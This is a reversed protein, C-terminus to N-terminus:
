PARHNKSSCFFVNLMYRIMTVTDYYGCVVNSADTCWTFALRFYMFQYYQWLALLLPPPTSIAPAPAPAPSVSPGAGKPLRQRGAHREIVQQVGSLMSPMRASSLLEAIQESLGQWWGGWLGVGEVTQGLSKLVMRSFVHIQIDGSHSQTLACIPLHITTISDLTASIGSLGATFHVSMGENIIAGGCDEPVLRGCLTEQTRVLATVMIFWLGAFSFKPLNKLPFFLATNPVSLEWTVGGGGEFDYPGYYHSQTYDWLSVSSGGIERVSLTFITNKRTCM